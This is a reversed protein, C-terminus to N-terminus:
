YFGYGGGGGYMMSMSQEETMAFLFLLMAASALSGALPYAAAGVKKCQNNQGMRECIPKALLGFLCCTIAGVFILGPLTQLLIFTSM